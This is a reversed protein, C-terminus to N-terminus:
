RSLEKELATILGTDYPKVASRYRAVLRGDRGVLFKEFNWKVDGPFGGKESTLYTYLPHQDKGLVSIKSFVDFTVGYNKECFEKIDGDTGPEQGGFNNAPFALIVFGKEHYQKFLKELDAYQPTYGCQSAVNVILLVKGKYDHLSRQSGDITKMTFAYLGQAFTQKTSINMVAFLLLFMATLTFPKKIM